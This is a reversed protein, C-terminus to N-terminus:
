GTGLQNQKTTLQTDLRMITGENTKFEVTMAVEPTKRIEQIRGQNALISFLGSVLGQM